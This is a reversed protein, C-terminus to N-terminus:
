DMLQVSLLGQPSFPYPLQGFPNPRAQVQLNGLLDAVRAIDDPHAHMCGHSNPMPMSPNWNEWEGTHLLIGNRVFPYAFAANGQLGLVARNM